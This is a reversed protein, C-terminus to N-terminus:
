RGRTRAGWLVKHLQVMVRAELGDKLVAEAIRAGSRGWVPQFIVAAKTPHEDLVARSHAYDKLDRLVFKVQDRGRLEALNEFRMKKHMKSSPCKIDLSLRLKGTKDLALIDGVPLSGNTEVSVEYGAKLLRAVLEPADKQLLPEGGTLCVRKVKYNSIRTELSDLSWDAGGEYAYKTDCWACRLNCGVSRVFVTPLGSDLGEGQISLFVECIRL